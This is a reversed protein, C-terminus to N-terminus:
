CLMANRLIQIDIILITRRYWLCRYRFAYMQNVNSELKDLHGVYNMCPGLAAAGGVRRQYLLQLVPQIFRKFEKRRGM